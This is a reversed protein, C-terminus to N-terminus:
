AYIPLGNISGTIMCMRKGTSLNYERVRGGGSDPGFMANMCLAHGKALDVIHIYDRLCTGDPTEYDGGFVQLKERKGVAVQAIYPTLNNPKGQPEEGINAELHAGAPNFYRLSIAGWDQSYVALINNLENAFFTRVRYAKCVDRIIIETFQKTSGYPSICNGLFPVRLSKTLM